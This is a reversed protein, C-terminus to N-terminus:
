VRFVSQDWISIPYTNSRFYIVFYCSYSVCFSISTHTNFNSLFILPIQNIGINNISFCYLPGSLYKCEYQPSAAAPLHVMPFNYIYRVLLSNLHILSQDPIIYSKSLFYLVVCIICIHFIHTILNWNVTTCMYSIIRVSQLM